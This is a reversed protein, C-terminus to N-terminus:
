NEEDKRREVNRNMAVFSCFVGLIVSYINSMVIAILGYQIHFRNEECKTIITSGFPLSTFGVFLNIIIFYLLCESVANALKFERKLIHKKILYTIIAPVTFCLIKIM